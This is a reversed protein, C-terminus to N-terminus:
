RSTSSFRKLSNRPIGIFMWGFNKGTDGSSAALSIM